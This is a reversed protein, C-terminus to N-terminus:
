SSCFTKHTSLFFISHQNKLQNPRYYVNNLTPKPNKYHFWHTKGPGQWNLRNTLLKVTTRTWSLRSDWWLSTRSSNTNYTIDCFEHEINQTEPQGHIDTTTLHTATPLFTEAFSVNNTTATMQTNVTSETVTWRIWQEGNVTNVTWREGYESNVTWRIWREPHYMVTGGGPAIWWDHRQCTGPLHQTRKHVKPVDNPINSTAPIYM